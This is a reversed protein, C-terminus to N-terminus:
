NKWISTMMRYIKGKSFYKKWCTVNIKKIKIYKEM